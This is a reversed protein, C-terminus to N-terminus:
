WVGGEALARPFATVSLSQSPSFSSVRLSFVANVAM